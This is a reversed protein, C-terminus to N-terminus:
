NKSQNWVDTNSNWVTIAGEMSAEELEGYNVDSSLQEIELNDKNTRGQIETSVQEGASDHLVEVPTCM